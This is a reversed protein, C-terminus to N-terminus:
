STRSAFSFASLCGLWPDGGLLDAESAAFLEDYDVLAAVPLAEPPASPTPGTTLWIALMAAAALPVTIALARPARWAAAAPPRRLVRVRNPTDASRRETGAVPAAALIRGALAESAVPEVAADLLADLSAERERERRAVPDRALLELAAQREDAPWSEANAGYAALLETLRRRDMPRAGGNM